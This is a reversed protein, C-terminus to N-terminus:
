RFQAAVSRLSCFPRTGPGRRGRPQQAPRLSHLHGRHPLHRLWPRRSPAQRLRQPQLVRRGAAEARGASDRACHPSEEGQFGAPECEATLFCNTLSGVAGCFSPVQFALHHFSARCIRNVLELPRETLAQLVKSTPGVQLKGSVFDVADAKSLSWNRLHLAFSCEM